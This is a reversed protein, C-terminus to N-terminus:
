NAMYMVLGANIVISGDGLSAANPWGDRTFVVRADTGRLDPNAALIKRVISQLYQHVEKQTIPRSSEWLYGLDEFQANYIRKYDDAHQKGAAAIFDQKKKMSQEYYKKCLLTDDKWFPYIPQPQSTGTVFSYLFGIVLCRRLLLM